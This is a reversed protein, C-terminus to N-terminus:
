AKKREDLGRSIRELVREAFERFHGECLRNAIKEIARAKQINDDFELVIPYHPQTSDEIAPVDWGDEPALGQSHYFYDVFVDYATDLLRPLAEDRSPSGAPPALAFVLACFLQDQDRVIRDQGLFRVVLEMGRWSQESDLGFVIDLYSIGSLALGGLDHFGARSDLLFYDIQRQSRLQRLLQKLPMPSSM